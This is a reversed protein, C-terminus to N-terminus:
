EIKPGSQETERESGAGNVHESRIPLESDIDRYKTLMTDVIYRFYEKSGLITLM